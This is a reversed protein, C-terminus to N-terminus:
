LESRIKKARKDLSERVRKELDAEYENRWALLEEKYEEFGNSKEIDWCPDRMWDEKLKQIEETTKTM